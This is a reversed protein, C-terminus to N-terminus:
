VAIRREDELLAADPPEVLLDAWPREAEGVPVERACARRMRVAERRVTTALWAALREPDRIRDLHEVLRLWATQVVEAADESGLGCSRATAWLLGSYRRVIADWAGADGAAARRVLEAPEPAPRDPAPTVRPSPTPPVASM